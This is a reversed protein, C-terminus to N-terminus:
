AAVAQEKLRRPRQSWWLLALGTLVALVPALYAFIWGRELTLGFKVSATALGQVGVMLVVALAIQRWLGFRSYSGQLLAGFAILAVGLALFPDAIRSHGEFILTARPAKTEAILDDSPALLGWTPIEDTTRGRVSPGSLLGGLDFTFDAFRTVSLRGSAKNLMQAMGNIMILKPGNEGRVFLARGATFTTVRAESRTDTLLLDNLAGNDSIEGIYLTVGTSPHMFQGPKLFRATVNESIDERREIMMMRSAPVLYHTLVMMMLAVALGFFVVPRAMRFSSFGTAQMVVLESDSMLRNTGYVTAAFAAIPLVLKIVNPLSLASIELFVLASQGDGILQDFLGVARNVWYVAVLVLAFFGFLALLQFFMYRDFRPLPGNRNVTVIWLGSQGGPFVRMQHKPPDTVLRPGFGARLGCPRCM